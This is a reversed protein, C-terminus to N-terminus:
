QGDLAERTYRRVEQDGHIVMAQAAKLSAVLRSVEELELGVFSNRNHVQSMLLTIRDAITKAKKMAAEREAEYKLLLDEASSM